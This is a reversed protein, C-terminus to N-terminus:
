QQGLALEKRARDRRRKEDIGVDTLDFSPQQPAALVAELYGDKFGFAHQSGCHPCRLSIDKSWNRQVSEFGTEIRTEVYAETKPCRFRLNMTADERVVIM